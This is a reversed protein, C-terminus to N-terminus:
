RVRRMPTKAADPQFLGRDVRAQMEAIAAEETMNGLSGGSHLATYSASPEVRGDAFQFAPYYFLEVWHKGSRSEWRAIYKKIHAM